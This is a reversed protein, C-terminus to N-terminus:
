WWYWKPQNYQLSYDDATADPMHTHNAVTIPIRSMNTRIRIRPDPDPDGSGYRQIIFGSGSGKM